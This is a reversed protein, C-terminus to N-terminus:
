TNYGCTSHVSNTGRLGFPISKTGLTVLYPVQLLFNLNISRSKPLGPVGLCCPDLILVQCHLRGGM